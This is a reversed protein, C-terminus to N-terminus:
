MRLIRFRSKRPMTRTPYHSLTVQTATPLETDSVNRCRSMDVILSGTIYIYLDEKLDSHINETNSAKCSVPNESTTPVNWGDVDYSKRFEPRGEDTADGFFFFYDLESEELCAMARRSCCDSEKCHHINCDVTLGM